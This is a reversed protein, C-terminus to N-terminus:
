PFILFPRHSDDTKIKYESRSKKKDKKGHYRLSCQGQSPRDFLRFGKFDGIKSWFLFKFLRLFSEQVADKADDDNKLFRLASRHLKERRKFFSSTLIDTKM